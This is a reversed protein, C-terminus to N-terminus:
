SKVYKKRRWWTNALAMLILLLLPVLTNLLQWYLREEKIQELDLLRIKLERSRIAILGKDDLMYDLTNVLFDKNGYQTNTYQDYGLPLPAGKPINPNVLNFQNLIIDGDAVVLMQNQSSEEKTKLNEAGVKPSLRNKFVSSFKGELLVALPIGAERFQRRPPPDYLKGLSVIHPTALRASYPSSKLLITKKIGAAMVTDLSSAFRLWIANLDKAIPHNVQPMVMPFYVWPRIKKQDNVGAGVLDTVLDTNVRVGYKFLMDNLQLRDFLPLSMFQSANSLSDMSAVAADLLWITKGGNMIFQDLLYKDLNNFGKQPKAIVMADFRNLRIQQQAISLSEGSSDSKFERINFLNANYNASISKAFDAIDKPGLEEHGQLFGVLPKEEAVLSRIANALTFELNEISSNIQNEPSAGIQDLLLLAAAEKEGYNLVAGPFITKVSNGDSNKISLQYPKLGKFQLQQYQKTTEEETNNNSPDLFTYQINPNYARFEDLMQKTETELRQFGAPFEGALYVKVLMVDQISELMNLTADSLTYRKEATLDIRFFKLGGIINVLLVIAIFLAFRSLDRRKKNM